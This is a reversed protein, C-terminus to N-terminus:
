DTRAQKQSQHKQERMINLSNMKSSEPESLDNERIEKNVKDENLFTSIERSATQLNMTPEPPVAQENRSPNRFESLQEVKQEPAESILSQPVESGTKGGAKIIQDKLSQQVGSTSGAAQNLIDLATYGGYNRYNIEMKTKNLMYEALQFVTNM